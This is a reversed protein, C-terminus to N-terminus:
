DINQRRVKPQFREVLSAVKARHEDPVKDVSDYTTTNGDTTIAIESAVPKGDGLEGKVVYRTDNQTADVEFKGNNISMRVNNIGRVPVADLGPARFVQPDDVKKVEPLEVKLTEKKGKRLIVIDIKEGAKAEQVKKVMETIDDTLPEGNFELLIDSVKLGAKEAASGPIIDFAVLGRGAALDLQDAVVLPVRELRVGLRGDNSRRMTFPDGGGIAIGPIRAIRGGLEGMLRQQENMMQRLAAPDGPNRALNEQARRLMEQAKRAAEADLGGNPFGPFQPFAPAQVRPRDGPRVVEPMQQPKVWARGTLAKELADLHKRIEDVNEGKKGANEVAKRLSELEPPAGVQVDEPKYSPKKTADAPKSDAPKDGASLSPTQGGFTFVAAAGLAAGGALAPWWRRVRKSEVM